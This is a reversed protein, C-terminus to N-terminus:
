LIIIDEKKFKFYNLILYYNQVFSNYHRLINKNCKNFIYFENFPLETCLIGAMRPVYILTVSEYNKMACM